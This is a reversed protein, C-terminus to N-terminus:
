IRLQVPMHLYKVWAKGVDDITFDLGYDEAILLGLLTYTVDDDVPVGDMGDRTYKIFESVGYRKDSPNKVASWYDEPPFKDGIYEAWEKMSEISWFEVPAGLTCGAMRGIFAGKLRHIYKDRDFDKWLRRSGEPRLARISKLDNPEKASFEPDEELAKIKEIIDKLQAEAKNVLEQIKERDAGYEFKLRAYEKLHDFVPNLNPLQPYNYKM